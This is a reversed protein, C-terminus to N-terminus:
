PLGNSYPHNMFVRGRWDATLGNTIESAQFRPKFDGHGPVISDLGPALSLMRKATRWPMWPECCPDLDFPGLAEVLEPPSLWRDTGDLYLHRM